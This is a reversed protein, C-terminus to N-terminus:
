GPRESSDRCPLCQCAEWGLEQGANGLGLTPMTSEEYEVAKPTPSMSQSVSLDLCPQGFTLASGTLIESYRKIGLKYCGLSQAACSLQSSHVSAPTHLAPPLPSNYKAHHSPLVESVSMAHLEEITGM